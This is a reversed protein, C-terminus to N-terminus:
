EGKAKAIAPDVVEEILSNLAAGPTVTYRPVGGEKVLSRFLTLAELLDPAANAALGDAHGRKYGNEFDHHGSM